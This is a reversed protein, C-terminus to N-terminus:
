DCYLAVVDWGAARMGDAAARMEEVRTADTVLVRVRGAIVDTPWGFSKTIANALLVMEQETNMM